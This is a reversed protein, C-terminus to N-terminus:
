VAFVVWGKEWPSAALDPLVSRCVPSGLLFFGCGVAARSVGNQVGACVEFSSDGM